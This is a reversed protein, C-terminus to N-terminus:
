GLCERYVEETKEVMKEQSFNKRIYERANEGLRRAQAPSKLLEILSDALAKPDAPEVLLGSYGHQILNKIGGVGSGVVALGIAMAEMLSLGLGEQLSPMVFIDLAFLLEATDLVNPIFSINQKLGLKQTLRVLEDQMSGEGAILLRVEPVQEVVYKMAEILYIHGKVSSLRAIIGIAPHNEVSFKAQLSARVKAEPPHFAELDIGNHVLRIDTEAVKFDKLLHEKVSESIAIVKKGWCPFVRRFFRPRFFGHCTSVFVPAKPGALLSAVVQTVRTQAHIIDIRKEQMLPKLQVLSKFVSLSIEQKTAIPIPIYEAGAEIFKSLWLGKDSAIYVKHGKRLLGKALTFCYSTIGGTNLHSTLLIINM